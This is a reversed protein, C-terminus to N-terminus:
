LGRIPSKRPTEFVRTHWVNPACAPCYRASCGQVALVVLAVDRVVSVDDEDDIMITNAGGGLEISIAVPCLTDEIVGTAALLGLCRYGWGNHRDNEDRRTRMGAVPVLLDKGM